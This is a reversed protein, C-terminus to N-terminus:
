YSVHWGTYAMPINILVVYLANVHRGTSNKKKDTTFVIAM